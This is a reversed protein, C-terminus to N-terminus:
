CSGVPGPILSKVDRSRMFARYLQKRRSCAQVRPLPSTRLDSESLLHSQVARAHGLLGTVDGGRRRRQSLVEHAPQVCSLLGSCREAGTIQVLIPLWRLM